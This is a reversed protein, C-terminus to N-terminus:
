ILPTPAPPTLAGGFTKILHFDPCFEQFDSFGRFTQAFDTFVKAFDRFIQLFERFIHAFIADLRSQNLFM